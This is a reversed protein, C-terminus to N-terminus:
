ILGSVSSLDKGFVIDPPFLKFATSSNISLSNRDLLHFSWSLFSSRTLINHLNFFIANRAFLHSNLNIEVLNTEAQSRSFRHLPEKPLISCVNSHVWCVYLCYFSRIFVEALCQNLATTFHVSQTHNSSLCACVRQHWRYGMLIQAWGLYM